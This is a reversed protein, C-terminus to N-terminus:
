TARCPASWKSHPVSARVPVASGPVHATPMVKIVASMTAATPALPKGGSTLTERHHRGAHTFSLRISAERVEVGSGNRGM